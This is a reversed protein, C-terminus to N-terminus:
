AVLPKKEIKQYLEAYQKASSAWTFDSTMGNTMLKTWAMKDKQFLDVARKIAKGFEDERYNFFVFGNGEGSVPAFEKITDSLGGTSRVVPVAGYRLAVIQSLGSPEFKSPKLIIDCGAFIQKALKADYTINIGLNKPYKKALDRLTGHYRDEGTGLVVLQWGEHAIRDIVPLLLDLGKRETLEGIFGLLPITTDIELQNIKQLSIKCDNKKKLSKVSFNHPIDTDKKPDWDDPNIGNIIGHLDAKRFALVSEMGCGLEKTQIEESYRKSVTTIADSYAIGAKLFSAKGYFEIRQYRFEEWSLGTLPLSDPPFNGQFGLNHITFVSKTKKFFPDGRYVTKLLAPIIGTQWDHCHIIDPKLKTRKLVEIVARQFFSFRQDNDPYDGLPTGYLEDREFFPTHMIFFVNVHGHWCSLVKAVEEEAGVPVPVEELVTELLFNQRKTKKYFPLFVSVRHGLRAIEEPLVGVVDALGGTKAFPYMESAVFVVDV